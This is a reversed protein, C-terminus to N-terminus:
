TVAYFYGVCAVTRRMIAQSLRLAASRFRHLSGLPVCRGGPALDNCGKTKFDIAQRVV